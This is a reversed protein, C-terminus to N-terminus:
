LWLMAYIHSKRKLLFCANSLNVMLAHEQLDMRIVHNCWLKIYDLAFLMEYKLSTNKGHLSLHCERTFNDVCKIIKNCIDNLFHNDSIKYSEMTKYMTKSSVIARSGFSNFQSSIRWKTQICPASRTIIQSPFLPDSKTSPYLNQCVFIAM